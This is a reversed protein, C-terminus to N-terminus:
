CLTRNAGYFLGGRVHPRRVHSISPTDNDNVATEEVANDTHTNENVSVYSVGGMFSSSVSDLQLSGNAYWLCETQSNFHHPTLNYWMTRREDLIGFRVCLYGVFASSWNIHTINSSTCLIRQVMTPWTACGTDTDETHTKRPNNDCQGSVDRHVSRLMSAPFPHLKPEEDEKCPQPQTSYETTPRPLPHVCQRAWVLGGSDGCGRCCHLYDALPIIQVRIDDPSLVKNHAHVCWVFMGRLCPDVFQPDRLDM